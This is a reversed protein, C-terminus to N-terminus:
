FVKIQIFNQGTVYAHSYSVRNDASVGMTQIPFIFVLLRILDQNYKRETVNPLSPLVADASRRKGASRESFYREPHAIFDPKQIGGVEQLDSTDM